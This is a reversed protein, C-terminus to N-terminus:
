NSFALDNFSNCRAKLSFRMDSSSIASRAELNACVGCSICAHIAAIVPERPGSALVSVHCCRSAFRRVIASWCSVYLAIPKSPLMPAGCVSKLSSCIACNLSAAGNVRLGECSCAAPMVSFPMSFRSYRM